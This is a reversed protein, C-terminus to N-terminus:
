EAEGQRLVRLPKPWLWVMIFAIALLTGIGALVAGTLQLRASVLLGIFLLTLSLALWFPVLDDEPMHLIAEPEAEILSTSLTERQAPDTPDNEMRIMASADKKGEPASTVVDWLPNRSNVEPLVEFNYPQPPSSTAWELSSGGWPNDGAVQGDNLSKLANLITLLIGVGLTFAGITELLNLGDWGLGGQYTYVRRPMGLLGNIHMPFFTLNFGIFMLWFNWTGLKEDMLRGTM